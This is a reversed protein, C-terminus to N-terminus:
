VNVVKTGAIYDHMCRKEKGFIALVNVLSLFPGVVPVNPALNFPLCRKVLLDAIPPKQGDLTVIKIKMFRKGWTQGTQALPVYHIAVYLVFAGAMWVLQEPTFKQGAEAAALQRQWYGTLFMLPLMVGMMILGDAIAASLRASRNADTGAPPDHPHRNLPAEPPSYPNSDSM